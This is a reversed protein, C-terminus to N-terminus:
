SPQVDMILYPKRQLRSTLWYKPPLSLLITWIPSLWTGSSFLMPTQLQFDVSTLIVIGLDGTVIQGYIVLVVCSLPTQLEPRDSIGMLIFETVQTHNGPAM